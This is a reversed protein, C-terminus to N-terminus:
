LRLRGTQLYIAQGTELTIGARRKFIHRSQLAVLQDPISHSTGSFDPGNVSDISLSDKEFRAPTVFVQGAAAPACCAEVASEASTAPSAACLLSASGVCCAGADDRPVCVTAAATSAVAILLLITTLIRQMFSSSQRGFLSVRIPQLELQKISCRGCPELM